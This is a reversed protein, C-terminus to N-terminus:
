GEPPLMERLADITPATEIAELVTALITPDKIAQVRPLIGLGVAGFRMRLGLAIGQTLGENLGRNLWNQESPSIFPMKEREEFQLIDTEFTAQPVPPLTMMWDILRYLKVVQERGWGRNYLGKVLRLKWGQRGAIDGRTELTKLHALVVAAFPNPDTELTAEQDKYDLLKVVPFTFHVGCGWLSAAHGTPRWRPGDDGLIALSVPMRGYRDELRHNYTYMRQGFDTDHQSKVEVHVFVWVEVGDRRWVKVLKDVTGKGTEAQGTLKQLEKDVFEHGRGWDIGSHPEPFFFALFPEFYWELAEKWPGDFESASEDV